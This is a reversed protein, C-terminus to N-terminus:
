IINVEQASFEIEAIVDITIIKFFNYLHLSFFKIKIKNIKDTKIINDFM